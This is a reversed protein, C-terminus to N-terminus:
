ARGNYELSIHNGDAPTFDGGWRARGDLSKWYAGCAQWAPHDSRTIYAGDVFLQWDTGLGNPHAGNVLHVRDEVRVMLGTKLDLARRGTKGDAGRPLIRGEGQRLKWGPHSLVWLVWRAQLEAFREQLEGLSL